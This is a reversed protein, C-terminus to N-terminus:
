ARRRNRRSSAVLGLSGLALLALSGPEPISLSAHEAVLDFTWVTPVGDASDGVLSARASSTAMAIVGVICISPVRINM